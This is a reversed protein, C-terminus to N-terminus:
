VSGRCVVDFIRRVFTNAVYICRLKSYIAVYMAAFLVWFVRFGCDASCCTYAASCTSPVYLSRLYVLSIYGMFGVTHDPCHYSVRCADMSRARVELVRGGWPCLSFRPMALYGALSLECVQLFPWPTWTRIHYIAYIFSFSHPLDCFAHAQAADASACSNNSAESAWKDLLQNRQTPHSISWAQWGLYFHANVTETLQKQTWWTVGILCVLKLSM